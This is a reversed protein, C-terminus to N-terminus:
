TFTRTFSKPLALPRRSALARRRAAWPAVVLAYLLKAGAVVVVFAFLLGFRTDLILENRINTLTEFGILPLFLGLALLATFGAERLARAVDVRESAAPAAM